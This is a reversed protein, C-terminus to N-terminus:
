KVNESVKEAPQIDCYINRLVLPTSTDYAFSVHDFTIQGKAPWSTPPKDKPNDLDAEPPIETYRVVREARVM